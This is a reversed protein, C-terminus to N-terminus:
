KFGGNALTSPMVDSEAFYAASKEKKLLNLEQDFEPQLRRQLRKVTEPHWRGGRVTPIGRENLMRTLVVPGHKAGALLSLELLIPRMKEAFKDAEVKNIQGRRRVRVGFGWQSKSIAAILKELNRSM